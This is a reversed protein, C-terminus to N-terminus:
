GYVLEYEANLVPKKNNIFAALLHCEDYEICQENVAFDYYDVRKAIQDLDNKLGRSM